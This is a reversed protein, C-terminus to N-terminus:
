LSEEESESMSCTPRKAATRTVSLGHTRGSSKKCGIAPRSKSQPAQSKRYRPVRQVQWGHRIAGGLWFGTRQQRGRLGVSRQNQNMTVPIYTSQHVSQIVDTFPAPHRTGKCPGQHPASPKQVPSEGEGRSDTATWLLWVTAQPVTKVQLETPKGAVGCGENCPAECM